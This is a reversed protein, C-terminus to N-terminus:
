NNDWPEFKYKDDLGNGFAETSDSKLLVIATQFILQIDKLISFQEIYMMDMILKDKPTTNYKGTIQAYGTLGAKMRLRYQFEPLEETYEEVNKIMEPRPGVFTMDGKLVNWLQPLEDIRTRRLFKGPKTIRDDDAKASYNEVNQKMTRLKYVDFRRGHITAREQKFIVPGGDHLKVAIMGGIWLPSSIVGLVFSLSIDLLRKMIRQEMTLSKVNKNFLYVDDLVYRRSNWEMIDEIEPNFYVNIRYKYSWRLVKKRTESPIDYAFVADSKRIWSEIIKDDCQYDLIKFIDYQKKYKSIAFAIENLSKQSSTIICCKEPKHIKFFLGNGAYTFIVIVVIQLIVILLLLALSQPKFLRFARISPTNTRMIMFQLYTVVDTCLVSLVLSYIIPKSKRRGIDYRGYISLFLLGMFVFTTVTIGLTRSLRTMGISEKGMVIVFIALLSFYLIAKVALWMTTEFKHLHKKMLIIVLKRELYTWIRM